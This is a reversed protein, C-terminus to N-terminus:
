WRGAAEGGGATPVVGFQAAERLAVANLAAEKLAAENLAAEKLAAENM